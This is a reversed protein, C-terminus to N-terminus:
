SEANKGFRSRPGNVVAARAVWFARWVAYAAAPIRWCHVINRKLFITRRLVWHYLLYGRWGPRGHRLLFIWGSLAKDFESFRATSASLRLGGSQFQLHVLEPSPDFVIRHGGEHLRIAFDYDDGYSAGAFNEDFGGVSM